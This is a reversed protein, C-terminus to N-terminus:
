TNLMAGCRLDILNLLTGAMGVDCWRERYVQDAAAAFPRPDIERLRLLDEPEEMYVYHKGPEFPFPYHPQYNLALPMGCSAFEIERRNKKDTNRRGGLSVGWRCTRLINLYESMDDKESGVKVYFDQHKRAVDRYAGRGFRDAGTLTAQYIHQAGPEYRFVELPFERSPFITWASVPIQAVKEFYGWYPDDPRWQIHLLLRVSGFLHGCMFHGAREAEVVPSNTDWTSLAILKDDVRFTCLNGTVRGCMKPPLHPLHPDFRVDFLGSRDLMRMLTVNWSAFRHEADTPLTLTPKM